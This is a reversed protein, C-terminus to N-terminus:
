KKRENTTEKQTTKFSPTTKGRYIYGNKAKAIKGYLPNRQNYGM